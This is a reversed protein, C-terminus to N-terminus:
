LLNVVLHMREQKSANFATHKKLTDTHYWTNHRLFQIENEIVMYCGEQTKMPYHIRQTTDNHWSLCSHPKSNMVRMRGFKYKKRLHNYVDEFLTGKFQSCLINFDQEQVEYNRGMSRFSSVIWESKDVDYYGNDWNYVLSGRGFHIDDPKKSTSTICIQSKNVIGDKDKFWSIKKNEILSTFEKYLDYCPLDNLITFSM